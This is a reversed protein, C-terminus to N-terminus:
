RRPAERAARRKAAMTKGAKVPGEVANGGRTVAKKKEGFRPPKKDVTVVINVDLDAGSHVVNVSLVDFGKERVKAEVVQKWKKQRILEALPQELEIKEVLTSQGKGGAAKPDHRYLGIIAKM